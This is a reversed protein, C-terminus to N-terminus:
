LITDSRAHLALEFAQLKSEAHLVYPGKYPRGVHPTYSYNHPHYLAVPIVADDIYGAM